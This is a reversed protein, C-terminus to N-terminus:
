FHMTVSVALAHSFYEYKGDTGNVSGVVNRTPGYGFQYAIDFDFRQGERGIGVSWFHRDLDSVLPQYNMDPISNENFIYGGSAHWGKDFYRTVGFEYYSSSEWDFTLPINAVPVYTPLPREIILTNLADWHTYDYNFELNWKPNPRYSVGVIVKYPMPLDLSAPSRVTPYGTLTETTHGTLKAEMDSRFSAGFSLKKTPQWLVGLNYGVSWGDGAVRFLDYNPIPTLGQRLDAKVWDVVIGGAVSLNPLVKWAVVPNIAINTLGSRIGATRFGTDQPWDVGLGFPSYVGLGLSVPSNKIGHTYFFQPVSLFGMKDKYHEGASSEYSPQLEISYVGVRLNNGELQTIGAPNYYIASPNDATAVFAMGRGIVFADQDPLDFAAARSSVAGLTLMGSM